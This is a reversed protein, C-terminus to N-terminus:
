QYRDPNPLPPRLPPPPYSPPLFCLLCFATTNSISHSPCMLLLNNNYLREPYWGFRCRHELFQVLVLDHYIRLIRLYVLLLSHTQTHTHTPPPTYYSALVCFYLYFFHRFHIRTPFTIMSPMHLVHIHLFISIMVWM